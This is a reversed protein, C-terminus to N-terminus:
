FDQEISEMLKIDDDDYNGNEFSESKMCETGEVSVKSNNNGDTLKSNIDLSQKNKVLNKDKRRTKPRETEKFDNDLDNILNQMLQDEMPDTTKGLKKVINKKQIEQKQKSLIEQKLTNERELKMLFTKDVPPLKNTLTKDVPQLIKETKKTIVPNRVPALNKKASIPKIAENSKTQKWPNKWFQKHTTISLTTETLENSANSEGLPSGAQIGIEKKVDVKSTENLTGSSAVQKTFSSKTSLTNISGYLTDEVSIVQGPLELTEPNTLPSKYQTKKTKYHSTLPSMRGFTEMKMTSTIHFNNEILTSHEKQTKWCLLKKM